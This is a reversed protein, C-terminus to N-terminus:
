SELMEFTLQTGESIDFRVKRGILSSEQSPPIGNGPRQALLHGQTLVTGAPIDSRASLSKRAWAVSKREAQTPAKVAGGLAAEVERIETVFRPFSEADCSVKWDQANPVDRDLTIHKEIVRAGLAVAALPVATGVTHDSYGVPGNFIAKLQAIASLNADKPDTPYSTVCHLLSLRSEGGEAIARTAANVDEIGYMGTSLIIPKGRKAIEKLWPWNGVEGSGIKFAPVGVTRDLFDLAEEDHGTCLFMIGQGKAYDRLRLIDDDPLEKSRLRERWDPASAGVLRDTKFHQFKVADAGARVSLDILACAKEMSGFHNVGAEAIVFCPHMPGIRRDGIAFCSAFHEM